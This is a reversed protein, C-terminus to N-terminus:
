QGDDYSDYDNYINGDKGSNWPEPSPALVPIKLATVRLPNVAKKIKRKNQWTCSVSIM